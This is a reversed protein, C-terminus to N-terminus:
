AEEALTGLYHQTSQHQRVSVARTASMEGKWCIYALDIVEKATAVREM